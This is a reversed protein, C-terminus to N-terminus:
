SILVDKMNEPCNDLSLLSKCEFKPFLKNNTYEVVNFLDELGGLRCKNTEPVDKNSLYIVKTGLGLCPLACHIRNTIVMGAKSYDMVLREAEKLRATDDVFGKLYYEDEQCIYQADFLINKDFVKSYTQLYGALAIIRRIPNVNELIKKKWYLRIVGRVHGLFYFLSSLFQSFSFTIKIIPDVIYISKGKQTKAIKKGLTLTMCGSFYAKVGESKLLELTFTDRCGIPEFHKLYQISESSTFIDKVSSNIHFAVFLPHIKASPPWNEPNQMYWGNMIVKTPEGDYSKLEEDRDIFGDIKPYYKSAALAQIYDGINLSKLKKSKSVALLHYKM